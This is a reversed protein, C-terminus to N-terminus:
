NYISIKLPIISLNRIKGSEKSTEECVGSDNMDSSDSKLSDRRTAEAFLKNGNEKSELFSSLDLISIDSDESRSTDDDDNQYQILKNKLIADLEMQKDKKDNGNIEWAIKGEDEFDEQPRNIKDPAFMLKLKNRANKIHVDNRSLDNYEQQNNSGINEKDDQWFKSESNSKMQDISNIFGKRKLSPPNLIGKLINGNPM